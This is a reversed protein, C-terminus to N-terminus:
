IKSRLFFILGRGGKRLDQYNGPGFLQRKNVKNVNLISIQISKFNLCLFYLFVLCFSSIKLSFGASAGKSKFRSIFVLFSFATQFRKKIKM